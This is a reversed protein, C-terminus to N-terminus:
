IKEMSLNISDSLFKMDYESYRYDCHLSLLKSSIGEDKTLWSMNWHIPCFIQYNALRNRIFDRDNKQNFLLVFFQSLFQENYIKVTSKRIINNNLYTFNNKTMLYARKIDFRKMMQKSSFTMKYGYEKTDSLMDEMKTLIKFNEDSIYNCVKSYFRSLMAGARQFSFDERISDKPSPVNINNSGVFAGDPFPGMKRLSMVVFHSRNFVYKVEDTNILSHCIDSIIKVNKMKLKEYESQRIIGFYNIIYVTDGEEIKNLSEQSISLDNEQEFFLIKTGTAFVPDYITKCLFHPLWIRKIGLSHVLSFIADRGTSFFNIHKLSKNLYNYLSNISEKELLLETHLHYDGGIM